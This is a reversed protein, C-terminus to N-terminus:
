KASLTLMDVLRPNVTGDGNMRHHVILILSSQPDVAKKSSYAKRWQNKDLIWFQYQLFYDKPRLDAIRREQPKMQFVPDSGFQAAINFRCFNYVLAKGAPITESVDLLPYVNFASMAQDKPSFLLLASRTTPPLVTQGIIQRRPEPQGEVKIEKFFQLTPSGKYDLFPTRRNPFVKLDVVEGSSGAMKVEPPTYKYLLNGDKDLLDGYTGKAWIYVSLKAEIEEQASAAPQAAAPILPLSLLLATLLCVSKM